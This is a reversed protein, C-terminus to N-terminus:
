YVSEISSLFVSAIRNCKEDSLFLYTRDKNFSYYTFKITVGNIVISELKPDQLIELLAEYCKKRKAETKGAGRSSMYFNTGSM